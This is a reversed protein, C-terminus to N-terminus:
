YNSFCELLENPLGNQGHVPTSLWCDDIAEAAAHVSLRITDFSYPCLSVRQMSVYRTCFPFGHQKNQVKSLEERWGVRGVSEEFGALQTQPLLLTEVGQVAGAKPSGSM